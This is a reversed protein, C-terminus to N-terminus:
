SLSIKCRSKQLEHPSQFTVKESGFMVAQHKSVWFFTTLHWCGLTLNSCIVSCGKLVLFFMPFRPIYFVKLVTPMDVLQAEDNTMTSGKSEIVDLWRNAMAGVIQWVERRVTTAAVKKTSNQEPFCQCTVFDSTLKFMNLSMTRNHLYFFFPYFLHFIM